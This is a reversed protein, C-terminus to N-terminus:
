GSLRDSEGECYAAVAFGILANVQLQSFQPNKSKIQSSLDNSSDGHILNTCIWHGEGVMDSPTGTVGMAAMNHVFQYDNSTLSDGPDAGSVPAFMLTAAVAALITVCRPVTRPKDELPM